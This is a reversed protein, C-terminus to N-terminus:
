EGEGPAAEKTRRRRLGAIAIGGRRGVGGALIICYCNKNNKEM